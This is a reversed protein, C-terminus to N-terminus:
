IIYKKKGRVMQYEKKVESSLFDVHSKVKDINSM